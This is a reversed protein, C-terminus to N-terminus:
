GAPPDTSAPSKGSQDFGSAQGLVVVWTDKERSMQIDTSFKKGQRDTGSVQTSAEDPGVDHSVDMSKIKLGRGGHEAIIDRAEQETGEHGSPALGVLSTVNQDNLASIYAKATEQETRQADSSGDSSCGSLVVGGVLAAVWLTGKPFTM